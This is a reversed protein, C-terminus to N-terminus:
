GGIRKWNLVPSPKERPLTGKWERLMLLSRRANEANYIFKGQPTMQEVQQPRQESAWELFPNLVKKFARETEPTQRARISEILGDKVVFAASYNAVEIGAVELWDNSETLECLVTDGRTRYEGLAMKIKLAFDYEALDRIEEKGQLSIEGVVEFRANESHLSLLEERDYANYAKVYSKVVDAPKPSCSLVLLIPLTCFPVLARIGRNKRMAFVEKQPL